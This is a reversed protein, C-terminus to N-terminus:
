AAFKGALSKSRTVTLSHPSETNLTFSFNDRHRGHLDLLLLSTYRWDNKFQVTFSAKHDAEHGPWNVGSSLAGPVLLLSDPRKLSYACTNANCSISLRKSPLGAQIGTVKGVSSNQSGDVSYVQGTYSTM